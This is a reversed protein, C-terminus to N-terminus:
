SEKSLAVSEKSLAVSEKSLAVSEKSLAVSEKSLGVTEKGLAVSEKSLAVSEKSLGVSEKSLAVTEKGLAVSEKSLAVSEKSLAVSEKSLGVTEKGLAVSEEALGVSRYMMAGALDMREFLEDQWNGRIIDFYDYEGTGTDWRVNLDEVFVPYKQINIAEIFGTLVEEDAEAIIEVDYPMLNRVQGTVGLRRATKKIIDRYGVSQVEGRAIAVARKM